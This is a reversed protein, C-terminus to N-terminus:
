GVYEWFANISDFVEKKEYGYKALIAVTRQECDPNHPLGPHTELYISPHSLDITEKAGILVDEEFGEVDIKIFGVNDLPLGLEKLTDDLCVIDIEGEGATSPNLSPHENSIFSLKGPKSGLAKNVPIINKINNEAISLQLTKFNEPHPEFSVVTKSVRSMPISHSGIETGIDISIKDISCRQFMKAQQAKEWGGQKMHTSVCHWSGQYVHFKLGDVTVVQRNFNM